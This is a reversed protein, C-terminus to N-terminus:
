RAGYSIEIIQSQRITKAWVQSQSPSYRQPYLGTSTHKM